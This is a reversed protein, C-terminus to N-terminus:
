DDGVNQAGKSLPTLQCLRVILNKRGSKTSEATNRSLQAKTAMHDKDVVRHGDRFYQDM